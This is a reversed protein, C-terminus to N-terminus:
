ELINEVTQLADEFNSSYFDAGLELYNSKNIATGGIIIKTNQLNKSNKISNILNKASDFNLSYTVSILVITIKNDIIFKILDQSPTNKGVYFSNHGNFKLLESLMKIGLLHLEPYPAVCLCNKESFEKKEYKLSVIAITKEIEESILHEDIVSIRNQEWLDGVMYLIPTIANKFLQLLTVGTEVYNLIYDLALSYEKSLLLDLYKSNNFTVINSDQAVINNFLYDLSVKYFSAIKKLIVENPFRIGNEYNALASSGINMADAAKKQNLGMKKRIQKLRLGFNDKKNYSNM